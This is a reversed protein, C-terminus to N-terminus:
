VNTAVSLPIQNYIFYCSIIFTGLYYLDCKYRGGPQSFIQNDMVFTFNNGAVYALPTYHIAGSPDNPPTDPFVSIEDAPTGYPPYCPQGNFARYVSLYTSGINPVKTLDIGNLALHLFPSQATLIAYPMLM